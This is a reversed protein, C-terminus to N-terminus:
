LAVDSEAVLRDVHLRCLYEGPAANREGYWQANEAPVYRAAIRTAWEVMDPPNRALRVQGRVVVFSYPFVELDVGLAARPDARLHRGKVSSEGTGFVLDDGDVVFWVPAVHPGGPGATALKGTRTGGALFAFAEDRTMQPM